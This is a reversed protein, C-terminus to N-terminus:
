RTWDEVRLGPVKEFHRLNRTLLIERNSICIAAIRLDMTGIRVKARQLNQYEEAAAQDFPLVPRTSFDENLEHLKSYGKPLQPPRARKVYELWGRLQEEFSIITVWVITSTEQRRLRSLLKTYAPESRTQIISLIDTDLVPVSPRELLAM